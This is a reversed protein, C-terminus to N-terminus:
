DNDLFVFRMDHVTGVLDTTDFNGNLLKLLGRLRKAGTPTIPALVTLESVNGEMSGIRGASEMRKQPPKIPQGPKLKAIMNEVAKKGMEPADAYLARIERIKEQVEPSDLTITHDKTMTTM